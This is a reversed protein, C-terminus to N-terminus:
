MVIRQVRHNRYDSVYIRGRSDRALGWPNFLEGPKRGNHGWCGLSQGDLTFKQVRSNGHESIYVHGAGDLALDWPYSLKGPESGEDGWISLLTGVQDFVQIRHNVSDAVWLHDDHDVAMSQPRCFQGPASGHGGWELLFKGEPSFKQIRDYEGYESVYLNGESDDVVDTVLGFEGPRHGEVGGLKQLLEGATSYILVQFYHTDAVLVRGQRDISLGTPRGNTHVPTRWMRIFRGETDFVQIRATKDCVYVNDEADIALPRPLEFRGDSIGRRGFVLDLRGSNTFDADCGAAALVIAIPALWPRANRWVRALPALGGAASQVEIVNM